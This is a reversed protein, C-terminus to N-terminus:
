SRRNLLYYIGNYYYLELVDGKNMDIYDMVNDNSDHMEGTPFDDGWSPDNNRPRSTIRFTPNFNIPDFPNGPIKFMSGTVIVTLRFGYESSIGNRGLDDRSPLNVTYRYNLEGRNVSLLITTSKAIQNIICDRVRAAIQEQTEITIPPLGFIYSIDEFVANGGIQAGNENVTLNGLRSGGRANLKGNVTLLGAVADWVINGFCLSGNGAADWKAFCGDALRGIWGTGDEDLHTSGNAAEFTARIFGGLAYVYGRAVVDNLIARGGHTLVINAMTKLEADTPQYRPNAKYMMVTRIAQELTGGGWTYVDDDDNYVGSVGATVKRMEGDKYNGLQIMSSLILGGIIDVSGNKIADSIYRISQFEAMSKDNDLPSPKWDTAVTGRELQIDCITATGSVLFVGGGDFTFKHTYRRYSSTLPQYASFSGCSVSVSTGKAKYSVVYAEQAILSVSQSLSGIAASKGSIANSDDSATASGTWHKLSKSYLESGASLVTTPSLNETEYDGCFGSNRLLNVAGVAANDIADQAKQALDAAVQIEDPLGDMNKWGSSGKEIHFTGKIDVGVNRTYRVYSSGDKAGIYADGYVNIYAHGTSKDFGLGIVEKGALSFSSIGQYFTISPSCENVSSLIIAAQRTMDTLHGLGVIDDGAAPVDSDKDCGTKSLDIYDAGVSTVERWYYRNSVDHSIGGKINCEQALALTGVTFENDITVGDQESLFFCRYSESLEEVRICKMGAPSLIQEGGVHTKKKVELEDFVAKAKVYLYDVVAQSMGNELVTIGSGNEGILLGKLFTILEQATDARDKRLFMDEMGEVYGAKDAYGAKIKQGNVLLYNEIYSLLELLDYNRHKHGVGGGSGYVRSMFDALFYAIADVSTTSWKESYPNQVPFLAGGSLSLHPFEALRPPVTFSGVEPVTINLVDTPVDTRPLNLLPRADAYKFTFTYNSPLERDTYSVNSDTVVIRRLYNGAYLYKGNSPFFDLLWKREDGNLYGTNKQFKRETDVRYESFIEDIEAINHTHEGNFVTNGYARFTDVGGLSNEFLIWQEQESKMNEAYYRQIYTLRQGSTGEVWVDYYAPLKHELWGAVVSYQLPMTYAIGPMLETVTYDTQSKVTGSEDTFYARLKVTGAVVAYYTLFEPSYYTVPKVNPQWTLFNQTLFNTASDTLRDVGSRIVRFTIETSDIVATFDAVLNTQQYVEGIDKLSYSLFSHVIEHIDIEMVGNEDPAYVQSVLEKDGAKLTFTTQQSSGIIFNKLNMSLSLMDPQQIINM